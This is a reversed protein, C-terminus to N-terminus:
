YLGMPGEETGRTKLSMVLVSGKRTSLHSGGLRTSTSGRRTLLAISSGHMGGTGEKSM